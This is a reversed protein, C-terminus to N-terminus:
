CTNKGYFERYTLSVPNYMARNLVFAAKEMKNAPPNMTVWFLDLYGELDDRNFGSHSNLFLKLYNCLHNVKCLPNQADPLKCIKKSDYAESILGLERVLKNHASEMDHVLKSGPAIHAGFAEMTKVGSTKGLGERKFVSIGKSDCGVGICIKSKSYGGRMKTGDPKLPQDKAALPYLTEDIQVVGSLVTACQVDKLVAFLKARWYPFTTVSRRNARTMANISEFSFLELLFETWDAAPIKRGEFITATAPGFTRKCSLCRWRRIGNPDLGKGEISTSRCRPCAERTYSNFFEAEGELSPRAHRYRYVDQHCAKVLTEAPGLEDPDREDWPTASPAVWQRKKGSM